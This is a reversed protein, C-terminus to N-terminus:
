VYFFEVFHVTCAADLKIFLLKYNVITKFWAYQVGQLRYVPVSVHLLYM